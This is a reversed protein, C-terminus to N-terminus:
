AGLGSKKEVIIALTVDAEKVRTGEQNLRAFIEVVDELEHNIEIVPIVMKRIQWLRHLRAHVKSFLEADFQGKISTVIEQALPTLNEGREESLIKRISVWRPDNRRVPNPLAFELRDDEESLINVMVDYRELAKNWDQVNIWWYPKRGLLLCLATIRQQGDVIWIPQPFSQATRPESYELSDWMLFSGIPYNRYLSEALRKVKEPDWVFNRQLEPINIEGNVAQRVIEEVQRLTM